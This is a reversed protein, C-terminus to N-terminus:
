VKLKEKLNSVAWVATELAGNMSGQDKLSCHEGAFFWKGGCQPDIFVGGFEANQGPKMYTRSGLSFRHHSWNQIHQDHSKVNKKLLQSLEKDISENWAPGAEAGRKGGLQATVMISPTFDVASDLLPQSKWAVGMEGKLQVLNTGLTGPLVKESYSSIAKSGTGVGMNKIAQRVQPDFSLSQWGKINRLVALPLACVVHKAKIKQEGDPTNFVLKIFEGEEEVEILEHQFRVLRDPIIGAFRDYLSQALLQSGGNIRYMNDKRYLGFFGKREVSYLFSLASVDFIECGFEFQVWKEILLLLRANKVNRQSLWTAVSEKDLDAMKVLEAKNFYSLPTMQNLELLSIEHVLFQFDKQLDALEKVSLKQNEYCFNWLVNQAKSFETVNLKFEQCLKLITSQSPHIWEGGIEGYQGASNFEYLSWIRGGPRKSAEFLRFPIQSLRMRDAAMLGALGGGIIVVRNKEEVDDGIIIRDISICSPLALVGASIGIGNRLFSRRSYRNM